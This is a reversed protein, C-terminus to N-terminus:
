RVVGALQRVAKFDRKEDDTTLNDPSDDLIAQAMKKGWDSPLQSVIKAPDSVRKGKKSRAKLRALAMLTSLESGSDPDM